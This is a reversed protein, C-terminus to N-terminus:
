PDLVQRTTHPRRPRRHGRARELVAQGVSLADARLRRRDIVLRTTVVRLKGLGGRRVWGIRGNPRGPIRVKMWSGSRVSRLVIYVERFGDETRRRLRSIRKAGAAPKELIEAPYRPHAWTTSTRENSLVEAGAQAPLACALVGLAIALRAGM